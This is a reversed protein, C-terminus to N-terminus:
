EGRWQMLVAYEGHPPMLECVFVWGNECFLQVHDVPQTM